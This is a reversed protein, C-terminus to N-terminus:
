EFLQEIEPPFKRRPSNDKVRFPPLSLDKEAARLYKRKTVRDGKIWYRPFGRSLKNARNWQREIGHYQGEHWHIEHWLIHPKILWWEYGHPLGDKLTHIESITTAGGYRWESRWIDYGTGHRLRYTGIVSGDGGYQKATGHIKGNVYPEILSLTGDDNWQFERGHKLGNRMPTEAVLQGEEGYGRQGVVEGNLVCDKLRYYIAGGDRRFERTVQEVVNPPIDSKFRRM